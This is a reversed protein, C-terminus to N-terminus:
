CNTSRHKTTSFRAWSEPPGPVTSLRATAVQLAAEISGKVAFELPPMVVERGGGLVDLAGAGSLL